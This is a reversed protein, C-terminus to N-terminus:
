IHYLFVFYNKSEGKNHVFISLVWCKHQQANSQAPMHYILAVFSTGWFSSHSTIHSSYLIVYSSVKGVTHKHTYVQQGTRVEFGNHKQALKRSDSRETVYHLVWAHLLIFVIIRLTGSLDKLKKLICSIKVSRLINIIYSYLSIILDIELFLKLKITKATSAVKFAADRSFFDLFHVYCTVSSRTCWKTWLLLQRTAGWAAAPPVDSIYTNM